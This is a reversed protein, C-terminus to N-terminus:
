LIHSQITKSSLKKVLLFLSREVFNKNKNSALELVKIYVVKTHCLKTYASKM